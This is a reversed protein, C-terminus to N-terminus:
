SWTIGRCLLIYGAQLELVDPVVHSQKQRCSARLIDGLMTIPGM